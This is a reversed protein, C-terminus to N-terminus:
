MSPTPGLFDVTLLTCPKRSDPAVCLFGATNLQLVEPAAAVKQKRQSGKTRHGTQKPSMGSLSTVQAQKQLTPFRPSM